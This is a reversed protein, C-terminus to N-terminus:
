KGTKKFKLRRFLFFGADFNFTHMMGQDAREFKVFGYYSRSRFFFDRHEASFGFFWGFDVDHFNKPQFRVESSDSLIHFTQSTVSNLRTGLNAGLLFRFDFKKLVPLEFAFSIPINLYLSKIKETQANTKYFFNRETMNLGTSMFMLGYMPFYKEIGFNFGPAYALNRFLKSYYLNSTSVGALFYVDDFFIAVKSLNVKSIMLSDADENQIQANVSILSLLGLLLFFSVKKM